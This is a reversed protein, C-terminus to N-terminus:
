FPKNDDYLGEDYYFNFILLPDGEKTEWLEFESDYQPLYDKELRKVVDFVSIVSKLTEKKSLVAHITIDFDRNTISVEIGSNKFTTRLMSIFSEMGDLEDDKLKELLERYNKIKM